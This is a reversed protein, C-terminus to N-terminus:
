KKKREFLGRERMHFFANTSFTIFRFEFCLLFICPDDLSLESRLYSSDFDAYDDQHQDHPDPRYRQEEIAPTLDAHQQRILWVILLLELDRTSADAGGSIGGVSVARRLVGAGLYSIAEGRGNAAICRLALGIDIDVEYRRRVSSDIANKM